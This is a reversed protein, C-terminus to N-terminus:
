QGRIQDLSLSLSHSVHISKRGSKKKRKKKESSIEFTYAVEHFSSFYHSFSVWFTYIM